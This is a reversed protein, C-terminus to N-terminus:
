KLVIRGRSGIALATWGGILCLGGLPTVPGLFKFRQPDLVLCYISGSFMVIGATFLSKAWINKPAAAEVTLLAVSHILQYQAATGWNALRAPDSIRGKLGHAGFAGLMVGTGGLIAAATWFSAPMNAPSPLSSESTTDPQLVPPPQM